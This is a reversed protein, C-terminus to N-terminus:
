HEAQKGEQELFAIYEPYDTPTDCEAWGPILFLVFLSLPLPVM